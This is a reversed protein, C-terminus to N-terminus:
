EYRCDSGADLSPYEDETWAAWTSSRRRLRERTFSSITEAAEPDSERRWVRALCLSM